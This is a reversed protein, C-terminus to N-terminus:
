RQAEAVCERQRGSINSSILYVAFCSGVGSSQQSYNERWATSCDTPCYSIGIRFGRHTAGSTLEGFRQFILPLHEPAIGM